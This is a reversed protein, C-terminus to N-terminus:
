IELEADITERAVDPGVIPALVLFAGRASLPPLQRSRGQAVQRRVLSWVAGVVAEAVLPTPQKDRPARRMLVSSFGRILAARREGGAPGTAFPEVFGARALAPDEAIQLFFARVARCVGAEWSSAGDSERLARALARASLFELTAVFCQDMDEFHAFFTATSVEALEVLQAEGMAEFGGRPISLAAARLIRTREDAADGYLEAPELPRRPMQMSSVPVSASTRYTLLWEGLEAGCSAFEEARGELFRSRAVFWVGGIIPRILAPPIVLGDPAQDLSQRVMAVFGAEAREIRGVAQPGAAFIEVLALRSPGPREVLEAAFADFALCLGSAWDSDRDPASRYASSIREMAQRVVLDYTALFCDEKGAFRQYLAKKSVGALAVLERATTGGYGHRACADIMAAYLRARQHAAVARPPANRRPTLKPFMPELTPNLSATSVVGTAAVTPERTQAYTNPGSM